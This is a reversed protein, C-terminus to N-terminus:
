RAPSATEKRVRIVALALAVILLLSSLVRAVEIWRNRQGFRLEVRHLGAPVIIGIRDLDAPFISLSRGGATARWHSFYTQNVLVVAPTRSTVDAVISQGEIRAAGIRTPGPGSKGVVWGPVVATRLPDFEKSEVTRIVDQVSRAPVLERPVHVLPLPDPITFLRIANGEITETGARELLNAFRDDNAIMTGCGEVRAWAVAVAPPAQVVRELTVRSLFSYMGAPSSDLGYAVGFPIGFLPDITRAALRYAERAHSQPRAPEGGVRRWIRLSGTAARVLRADPKYAGYLDLPLERAFWFAMPVLTLAVMANRARISVHQRLSLLLVAVAIATGAAIRELVASDGRMTLAVMASLLVVAATSVLPVVMGGRPLERRSMWVAVLVLAIVTLQIAFKEPYRLIRVLELRSALAVFLPNFRGLAFFALAAFAGQFRLMRRDRVFLAPLILAGLFISPFFPPWKQLPAWHYGGPGLELIVGRFPGIVLELFREPSLSAAFVTELSYPFRARQIEGSIESYAILLPSAVAFSLAVAGAGALWHRREIRGLTMLLSVVVTGIITVPEGALALLGYASGLMFLTRPGPSKLIRETALLALPVLAFATILNYFMMLSTSIGSLLYMSAVMAATRRDDVFELVLRRLAVVGLFLHLFFHLNFAVHSPLFLYLVWDPYFTLTNPDGALPQGGGAQFNWTPLEGSRFSSAALSELPFHTAFNDRYFFFLPFSLAVLLALVGAISGIKAATTKM